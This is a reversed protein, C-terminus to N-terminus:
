LGLGFYLPSFEARHGRINKLEGGSPLRSGDRIGPKGQPKQETSNPLWLSVSTLLQRRKECEPQGKKGKYGPQKTLM